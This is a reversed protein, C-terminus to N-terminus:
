SAGEAGERQPVADAAARAHIPTTRRVIREARAMLQECQEKSPVVKAFKVLDCEELFDEIQRHATRRNGAKGDEDLAIEDLGAISIKALEAMIEPTTSELGDFGYRAGLYSRLSDNVRDFYEGFRETEILGAARIEDLQELAVEWPPRPPPPPPPPKPRTLLKYLAFLLASGGVAGVAGWGLATKLATWEERQPRPPPNPVPKAEPINAIPDEVV